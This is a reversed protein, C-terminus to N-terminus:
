NDKEILTCRFEPFHPDGDIYQLCDEITSQEIIVDYYTSDNLSYKWAGAAFFLKINALKTSSVLEDGTIILDYKNKTGLNHSYHNFRLTEGQIVSKMNITQFRLETFSIKTESSWNNNTYKLYIM